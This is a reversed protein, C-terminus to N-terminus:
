QDRHIGPWQDRAPGMSGGGDHRGRYRWRKREAADARIWGVSFTILAFLVAAGVIAGNIELSSFGLRDLVLSLAGVGALLAGLQFWAKASVPPRDRLPRNM